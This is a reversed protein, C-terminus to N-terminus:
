DMVIVITRDEEYWDYLFKAHSTYNRVCKHSLPITGIAPSYEGLSMGHVYAGATFRIGWPEQGGIQDTGDVLYYFFPKKEMAYFYGKPTPQHYYGLKGTTCKSYSVIDWETRLYVGSEDYYSMRINNELAAITQNTLDVLIVKEITELQRNLAIWKSPVFYERQDAISYIKTFDKNSGLSTELIRVLTGDPLYDFDELNDLGWYAPAAAGRLTGDADASKGRYLPAMGNRDKYNSIYTLRGKTSEEKAKTAHNLMKVFEFRRTEGKYTYTYPYPVLYQHYKLDFVLQNSEVVKPSAPLPQGPTEKAPAVLNPRIILFLLIIAIGCLIAIIYKDRKM